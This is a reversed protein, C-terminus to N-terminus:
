ADNTSTICKKQIQSSHCLYQNYLNHTELIEELRIIKYKYNQKRQKNFCTLKTFNPRIVKNFKLNNM